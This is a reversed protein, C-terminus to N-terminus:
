TFLFLAQFVSFIQLFIWFIPSVGAGDSCMVYVNRTMGEYDCAPMSM